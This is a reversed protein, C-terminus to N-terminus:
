KTGGFINGFDKFLSELHQSAVPKVFGSAYKLAYIESETPVIGNDLKNFAQEIEYELEDM